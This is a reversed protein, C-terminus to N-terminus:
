RERERLLVGSTTPPWPPASVSGDPWLVSNETLPVAPGASRPMCSTCIGCTRPTPQGCYACPIM